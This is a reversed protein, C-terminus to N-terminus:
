HKLSKVARELQDMHKIAYETDNMARDLDFGDTTNINAGGPRSNGGRGGAARAFHPNEELWGNVFAKVTVYEGNGDTLRKGAQDVPYSDNGDEDLKIRNQLLQTVQEPNIAESAATTLARQVKEGRWTERVRNLEEDKEGLLRDRESKSQEYLDKFKQQEELRKQEQDRREEVMTKIDDIGGEFGLDSLQRQFQTQQESLRRDILGQVNGESVVRGPQQTQESNHTSQQSQQSQQQQQQPAQAPQNASTNAGASNGNQGDDAAMLGISLLRLLQKNM